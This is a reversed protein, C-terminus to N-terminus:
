RVDLLEERVHDAADDGRGGLRRLDAVLRAPHVVHGEAPPAFTVPPAPWFTVMGPEQVPVLRAQETIERSRAFDKAQLYLHISPVTSLFPAVRNAGAWATLRYDIVAEDLAMLVRQAAGEADRTGSHAYVAPRSEELLADCWVDLLESLDVSRGATRGRTATDCRMTWGERDFWRLVQSVRQVSVGVADAVDVLREVRRVVLIREAIDLAAGALRGTRPRTPAFAPDRIVIALGDPGIIRAGRDDVWNGGSQEIMALATETFQSAVAISRPGIRRQVRKVDRPLGSAMPVVDFANGAIVIDAHQDPHVDVGLRGVAEAIRSIAWKELERLTILHIM